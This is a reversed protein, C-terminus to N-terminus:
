FTETYQIPLNEYRLFYGGLWNKMLIVCFLSEFMVLWGLFFPKTVIKTRAKDFDVSIKPGRRQCIYKPSRTIIKLLETIKLLSLDYILGIYQM